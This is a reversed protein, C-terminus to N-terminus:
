RTSRGPPRPHTEDAIRIAEPQADPVGGIRGDGEQRDPAVNATM